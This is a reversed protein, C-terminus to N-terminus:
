RARCYYQLAIGIAAITGASSAVQLACHKIMLATHFHYRDRLRRVEPSLSGEVFYGYAVAVADIVSSIFGLELAREVVISHNLLM